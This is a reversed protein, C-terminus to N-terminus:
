ILYSNAQIENIRETWRDILRNTASDSDDGYYKRIFALLTKGDSDMVFSPIHSGSGVLVNTAPDVKILEISEYGKEPNAGNFWTVPNHSYIGNKTNLTWVYHNGEFMYHGAIVTPSNKLVELIEHRHIAPFFTSGEMQRLQHPLVNQSVQDVRVIYLTPVVDTTCTFVMADAESHILNTYRPIELVAAHDSNRVLVADPIKGQVM